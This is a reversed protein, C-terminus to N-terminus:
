SASNELVGLDETVLENLEDADLGGFIAPLPVAESVLEAM